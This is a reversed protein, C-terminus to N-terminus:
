GNGSTRVDDVLVLRRGHIAAKGGQIVAFAGQVNM